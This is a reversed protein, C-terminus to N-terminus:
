TQFLELKQEKTYSRNKKNKERSMYQSNMQM